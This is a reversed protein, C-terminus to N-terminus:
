LSIVFACLFLPLFFVKTEKHRRKKTMFETRPCNLGNELCIGVGFGIGAHAPSLGTQDRKGKPKYYRGNTPLLLRVWAGTASFPIV